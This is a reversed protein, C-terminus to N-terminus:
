QRAVFQVIQGNNRKMFLKGDHLRMENCSANSQRPETCLKGEEARWKGSDRGRPTDIYFYGNKDLQFRWNDGTPLKVDFINGALMGQLESAPPATSGAPFDQAVATASLAICAVCFLSKITKV